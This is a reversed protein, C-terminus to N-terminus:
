TRIFAELLKAKCESRDRSTTCSIGFLQYGKVFAVDFEFRDKDSLDRPIVISRAADTFGHLKMVDALVLSELWKGHMWECGEGISQFYKELADLRLCTDEAGFRDHLMKRLSGPLSEINLAVSKLEAEERVRLRGQENRFARPRLTRSCWDKWNRLVFGS